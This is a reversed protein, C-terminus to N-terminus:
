CAVVKEDDLYVLYKEVEQYGMATLINAYNALQLLHSDKQHGTKYDLVVVKKGVFVVRDPRSTKGDPSLIDQENKVEIGAKFFDRIEVKEIIRQLKETLPIKIEEELLGDMVVDEIVKPLDSATNIKSLVLHLLNGYERNRDPNEVDWITPASTSITIKKRWNGVNIPIETTKDSSQEKVIQKKSNVETQGFEYIKQDDKWLGKEILFGRFLDANDKFMTAETWGKDSTKDRTIIFLGKTPRTMTVYLLNLTDLFSKNKEKLYLESYDTNELAKSFKILATKFEPIEEFDLDIWSNDVALKSMNNAFPYIVVPFELGKAKHISMIRVANMGEPVIISHKHKTDNWFTLFESISENFKATFELIIDMFFQVFPDNQTPDLTFIRVLEAVNEYLTFPKLKSIDLRIGNKRILEELPLRNQPLDGKRSLEDCSEFAENLTISGIKKKEVLYNLIEAVPLKEKPDNIFGLVALIFGVERSASLKLFESSVVNIGNQLLYRAVQSGEDNKRTLVAIDRHEFGALDEVIIKRIKELEAVLLEDKEFENKDLFEVQVFGGTNKDDFQQHVSNYINKFSGDLFQRAYGFFENNFKIIEAKSRYNTALPFDEYHSKLLVERSKILPDNTPPYIKPLQAFQEVEGNRWRYIAQKGDGVIMNFNNNGLSNELLPLLNQWQLLSTDQFEDILFHKYKEGIREYIFPVPEAGVIEGIRKNFESIHVINENERFEDMVKQIANLVAIPYINQIVLKCIQYKSFEHETAHQIQMFSSVLQGSIEDIAQKDTFSAKGAYWKNEAITTGVFKNPMISDFNAGALKEFYASIGKNGQYFSGPDIGKNVILQVAQQAFGKIKNEFAKIITVLKSNIAIFDDTELSQLKKIAEFSDEKLLSATFTKLQLEINWSKEDDMKSEVFQVLAKTLSADTGVKSILLGISKAILKDSDLEIEFNVPLRLDRAFSRVLRHVFSDITSVAFNSYNHLILKLVLGANASIQLESLGTKDSIDDLVDKILPKQIPVPFHSLTKLYLLVRSKMENAAKNTFTIALVNRYKEPNEIVLRIYEKVLTHTKGSGASSKYVAFNM